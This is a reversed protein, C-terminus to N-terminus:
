NQRRLSVGPSDDDIFSEAKRQQVDIALRDPFSRALRRDTRPARPIGDGRNPRTQAKESAHHGPPIQLLVSLKRGSGREVSRHHGASQGQNAEFSLPLKGYATVVRPKAGEAAMEQHAPRSGFQLILFALACLCVSAFFFLIRRM